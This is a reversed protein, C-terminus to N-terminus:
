KDHWWYFGIWNSEYDKYFNIQGNIIKIIYIYIQRVWLSVNFVLHAIVSIMVKLKSINSEEFLYLEFCM